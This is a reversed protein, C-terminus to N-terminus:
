SPVPHSPTPCSPAPLSPILFGQCPPLCCTPGWRQAPAPPAPPTPFSKGSVKISFVLAIFGLCFLNCFMTNFFSWLVFDRPRPAPQPQPLTTITPGFATAPLGAGNRSHPQMNISISKLLNEV